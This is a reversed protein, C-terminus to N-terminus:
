TTEFSVELDHQITQEVVLEVLNVLAVFLLVELVPQLLYM